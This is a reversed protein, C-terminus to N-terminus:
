VLASHNCFTSEVTSQPIKSYWVTLSICVCCNGFTILEHLFILNPHTEYHKICHAHTNLNQKRHRQLIHTDWLTLTHTLLSLVTNQLPFHLTNWLNHWVLHKGKPNCATLLIHNVRIMISLCHKLPIHIMVDSVARSLHLEKATIYVAIAIDADLCRNWMLLTLGGSM